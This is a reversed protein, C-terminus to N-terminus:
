LARTGPFGSERQKQDPNGQLRNEVIMNFHSKFQTPTRFRLYIKGIHAQIAPDYQDTVIDVSATSDEAQFRKLLDIATGITTFSIRLVYAGKAEYASVDHGIINGITELLSKLNVDHWENESAPIYTDSLNERIARKLQKFPVRKALGLYEEQTEIPHKSLEHASAFSIYRKKLADKVRTCGNQSVQLYRYIVDTSVGWHKAASLIAKSCSSTGRGDWGRKLVWESVKKMFKFDDPDRLAPRTNALAYANRDKKTRM